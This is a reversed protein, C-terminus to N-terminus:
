NPALLKSAAATVEKPTKYIDKVMAEVDEGKMLGVELNMKKADALLEPDAMAKNFATRLMALREAPVGPPAFFPRGMKNPGLLMVALQKNADGKALDIIAPVTPLDPHKDVAFQALINIQKDDLWKKYRSVISDWGFGCRGNVEGREMALHTETSGSYGEIVKFKTGAVQNALKAHIADAASPGSSGVITEKAMADQITKIPSTHWTVCVSTESNMSGLWGMKTADIGLSDTGQLPEFPVNRLTIGIETGDKNAKHFVHMIAERGSAGPLNKPVVTPNGPLHKGIHSAMLRGYQDYGGGTTSGIYVTVTKGKYFDAQARADSAFLLAVVCVAVAGLGFGAFKSM